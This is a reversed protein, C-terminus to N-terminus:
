SKVSDDKFLIQKTCVLHSFTCKTIKYSLLPSSLIETQFRRDRKEVQFKSNEYM